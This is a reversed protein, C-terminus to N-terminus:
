DAPQVKSGPPPATMGPPNSGSEMTDIGPEPTPRAGEVPMETDAEPEDLPIAEEIDPTQEPEDQCAALALTAIVVAKFAEPKM